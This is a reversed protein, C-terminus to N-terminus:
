LVEIRYWDQVFKECFKHAEDVTMPVFETNSKISEEYLGDFFLATCHIGYAKLYLMLTSTTVTVAEKGRLYPLLVEAPVSNDVTQVEVQGGFHYSEKERPHTKLIVQKYNKMVFEEVLKIYKEIDSVYDEFPRTFIVADAEEFRINKLAPYLKEMIRGFLEGDTGDEEYLQRIERFNRYQMKEPQSCYKVCYKDPKFYFWGPSCYGMSALFFGQWNYLSLLKSKELFMPRKSYDFPGDELIIVEKEEGLAVCAGSVMGVDAIVVIEEYDQLHVYKNLLKRCFSKRKGILFYGTMKLMTIAKKVASLKSFDTDDKYIHAFIGSEECYSHMYEGKYGNPLCLADWVVDKGKNCYYWIFQYLNHPDYIVALGKRDSM